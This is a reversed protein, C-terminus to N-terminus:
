HCKPLEYTAKSCDGPANGKAHGLAHATRAAESLLSGHPSSLRVCSAEM